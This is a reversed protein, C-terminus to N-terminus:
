YTMLNYISTYLLLDENLIWTLDFDSHFLVSVSRFLKEFVINILKRM